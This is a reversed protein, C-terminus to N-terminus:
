SNKGLSFLAMDVKKALSYELVNGFESNSYVPEWNFQNAWMSLKVIGNASLSSTLKYDTLKNINKIGNLFYRDYAPVQGWVGLLIKSVLTDTPSIGSRSIEKKIDYIVKNLVPIDNSSFSSFNKDLLPLLVGNNSNLMFTLLDAIFYSNTNGLNSSGRFMGWIALYHNVMLSSMLVNEGSVSDSIVNFNSFYNLLIDYQYKASHNIPISLNIDRTYQEILKNVDMQNGINM